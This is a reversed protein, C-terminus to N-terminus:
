DRAQIIVSEGHYHVSRVGNRRLLHETGQGPIAILPGIVSRQEQAQDQPDKEHNAYSPLSSAPDPFSSRQTNAILSLLISDTYNPSM